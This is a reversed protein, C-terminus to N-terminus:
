MVPRGWLLFSIKQPSFAVICCHYNQYDSDLHVWRFCSLEFLQMLIKWTNSKKLKGKVWESSHCIDYNIVALTVKHLGVCLSGTSELPHIESVFVCFM